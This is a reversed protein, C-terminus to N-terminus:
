ASTAPPGRADKPAGTQFDNKFRRPLDKLHRM